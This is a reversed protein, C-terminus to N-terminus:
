RHHFVAVIEDDVGSDFEADDPHGEHEHTPAVIGFPRSYEARNM